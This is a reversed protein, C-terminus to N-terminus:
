ILPALVMTPYSTVFTISPQSPPELLLVISIDFSSVAFCSSTDLSEVRVFITEGPAFITYNSPLPNIDTNADNLTNHYTVEFFIPDQVGLAEADKLEPLNISLFGDGDLDCFGIDTM